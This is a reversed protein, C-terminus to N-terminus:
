QGASPAGCIACPKLKSYKEEGLQSYTFHGQLPLYRENIRKCNQDLHYYEGGSPNYYLVTNPYIAPTETPAPTTTISPDPTDAAEYTQLSNPNVYWLGDAEKMMMISLRYRVPDKGNNRDILAVTTLTRSDDNDTGSVKEVYYEKPTRNAILGFLATKPNETKSQWSPSCLTLMDDQRNANWYYFFTMLRDTVATADNEAGGSPSTQAPQPTPTPISYDTQGTYDETLSSGQGSGTETNKPRNLSSGGTSDGPKQTAIAIVAVTALLAFIITYCLRKNNEVLPKVWLLAISGLALIVFIWRLFGMHIAPIIGLTFIILLISGLILLDIDKMVFPKRRVPVQQPVYGAGNLPVQKNTDQQTNVPIQQSRGMQSYASYGQNYGTPAQYGQATYGQTSYGPAAYGQTNYGQTTYGQAPYGAAPYGQTYPVQPQNGQAAGHSASYAYGQPNAAPGAPQQYANQQSYGQTGPYGAQAQSYGQQAYPNQFAGQYGGPITQSGTTPPMQYVGPYANVSPQSGTVQPTQYTRQAQQLGQQAPYGTSASGSPYGGPVYNGPSYSGAPYGSPQGFVTGQPNNYDNQSM